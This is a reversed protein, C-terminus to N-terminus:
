WFYMVAFGILGVVVSIVSIVSEVKEDSSSHNPVISCEVREAEEWYEESHEYYGIGNEHYFFSYTGLGLLMIIFIM